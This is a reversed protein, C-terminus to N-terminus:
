RGFFLRETGISQVALKTVTKLQEATEKGFLSNLYILFNNSAKLSKEVLDFSILSVQKVDPEFKMNEKKRYNLCFHKAAVTAIDKTMMVKSLTFKGDKNSKGCPCHKIRFRKKDFELKQNEKM